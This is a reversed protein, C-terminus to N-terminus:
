VGPMKRGFFILPDAGITGSLFEWILHEFETVGIGNRLLSNTYMM